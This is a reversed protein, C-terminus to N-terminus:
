FTNADARIQARVLLMSQTSLENLVSYQLSNLLTLHQPAIKVANVRRDSLTAGCCHKLSIVNVEMAFVMVSRNNEFAFAEANRAYAKPRLCKRVPGIANSTETTVVDKTVNLHGSFM